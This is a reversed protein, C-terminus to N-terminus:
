FRPSVGSQDGLARRFDAFLAVAGPGSQSIELILVPGGPEHRVWGSVRGNDETEVLLVRCQRREIWGIMPQVDRFAPNGHRDRGQIAGPATDLAAWDRTGRVRGDSGVQLQLRQLSSAVGAPVHALAEAQWTGSLQALDNPLACDSLPAADAADQAPLQLLLAAVLGSWSLPRVVPWSCRQLRGM